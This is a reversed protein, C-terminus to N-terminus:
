SCEVISESWSAAFDGGREDMKLKSGWWVNTSELGDASDTGATMM